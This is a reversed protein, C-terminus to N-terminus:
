CFRIRIQLDGEEKTTSKPILLILFILSLNYIIFSLHLLGDGETVGEAHWSGWKTTAGISPNSHNKLESFQFIGCNIM